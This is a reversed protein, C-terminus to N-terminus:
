YTKITKTLFDAVDLLNFVVKANKAKGLKKYNPLGTGKAIYLDLTSSSIGLESAMEVKSIVARKYKKLLYEYLREKQLDEDNQM